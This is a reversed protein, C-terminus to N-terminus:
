ARARRLWGNLFKQNEPHEAVDAYYFREASARLDALVQIPTAKSLAMLTGAGVVGDEAVGVSAQLMKSARSVGINVGLSLLKNAVDQDTIEAISLPQCYSLDYISRAIQLAAVQGMSSYFLCNSLEPHYHEDIGFRTRKGDPATTIVGSLSADEWELVSDIAKNVDAV